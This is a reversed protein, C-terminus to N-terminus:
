RRGARTSYGLPGRCNGQHQEEPWAGPAAESSPQATRRQLARSCCAPWTACSASACTSACACSSSPSTWTPQRRGPTSSVARPSGTAVVVMAARSSHRLPGGQLAAAAVPNVRGRSGWSPGGAANRIKRPAQGRNYMQLVGNEENVSFPEDWQWRRKERRTATSSGEGRATYEILLGKICLPLHQQKCPMSQM